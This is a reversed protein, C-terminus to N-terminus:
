AFRARWILLGTLLLPMGGAVPLVRNSDVVPKEEVVFTLPPSVALTPVDAASATVAVRYHGAQILRIPWESDITQGPALQAFAEAKHASWDELDVPQEQGPDTQILSLWAVVGTAPVSQDNRIVTRYRLTDGMRPMAPNDPDAAISIDIPGSLASSSTLAAVAVLAVLLLEIPGGLAALAAVAAIAMRIPLAPSM